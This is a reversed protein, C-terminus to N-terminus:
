SVDTGPIKKEKSTITEIAAMFVDAIISVGLFFWLLGLLYLVARGYRSNSGEDWTRQEKNGFLPLFLGSQGQSAASARTVIGPARIGPARGRRPCGPPLSTRRAAPARAIPAAVCRTVSATGRPRSSSPRLSPWCGARSGTTGARRWPVVCHAFLALADSDASSLLDYLSDHPEVCRPASINKQPKGAPEVFGRGPPM